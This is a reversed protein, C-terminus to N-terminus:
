EALLKNIGKKLDRMFLAFDVFEHEALVAVFDEGSYVNGDIPEDRFCKDDIIDLLYVVAGLQEAPIESLTYGKSTCKIKM